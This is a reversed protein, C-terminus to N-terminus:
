RRATCFKLSGMMELILSVTVTGAAPVGAMDVEPVQEMAVGQTLAMGVEPVIETGVELDREMVAVQAPVM